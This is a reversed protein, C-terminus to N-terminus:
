NFLQKIYEKVVKEVGLQSPEIKTYNCKVESMIKEYRKRQEYTLKDMPFGNRVSYILLKDTPKLTKDDIETQIYMAPLETTCKWKDIYELRENIKLTIEYRTKSCVDQIGEESAKDYVKIHGDTGSKGLYYTLDSNQYKHIKWERKRGKDFTLESTTIGIYDFAVDILQVTIKHHRIMNLLYSLVRDTIPVKNPNFQVIFRTKLDNNMNNSYAFYFSYEETTWTWNNRYKNWQTSNWYKLNPDYEITDILPQIYMKFEYDNLNINLTIMDVSKNDEKLRM